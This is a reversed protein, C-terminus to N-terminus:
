RDTVSTMERLRNGRSVAAQTQGLHADTVSGLGDTLSAWWILPRGRIAGPFGTGPTEYTAQGLLSAAVHRDKEDSHTSDPSPYAVLDRKM